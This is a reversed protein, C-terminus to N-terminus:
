FIRRLRQNAIRLQVAESASQALAFLTQIQDSSLTRPKYDIICLSGLAFGDVDIVPAGAYFRFNPGSSVFPNTAFHKNRSLDEVAFIDRQLITHNCFAFDRQTETLDLGQRSKFWQRNSTLITFLSIPAKLSYSALWTLRDFSAEPATDVLGSRELAMLRQGENPALPFSPSGIVLPRSKSSDSVISRVTEALDGLSKIYCSRISAKAGTQSNRGGLVVLQMQALEPNSCLNHLLTTREKSKEELDIVVVAPSRLGIALSATYVDCFSEVTCGRVKEVLRELSPLREASAVLFVRASSAIPTRNNKEILELVDTRYVRRHGGPTKWSPVSGGEILLQATRVSVGLLKATESTTLIGKDM